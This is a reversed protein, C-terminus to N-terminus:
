VMRLHKIICGVKRTVDIGDELRLTMLQEYPLVDQGPVLKFEASALLAAVNTTNVKDHESVPIAPESKAQPSPTRAPAAMKGALSANTASLQERLERVSVNPAEEEIKDSNAADMSPGTSDAADGNSSPAAAPAAAPAEWAAPMDGSTHSPLSGKPSIVVAEEEQPAPQELEEAAAMSSKTYDAGAVPEQEQEAPYSTTTRVSADVDTDATLDANAEAADSPGLDAADEGIAPAAPVGEAGSVEKDAVVELQETEGPQVLAESSMEIFDSPEPDARGAKSGEVTAGAVCGTGILKSRVVGPVTPWGWASM